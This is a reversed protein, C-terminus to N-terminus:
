EEMKTHADGNGNLVLNDGNLKASNGGTMDDSKLPIQPKEESTSREPLSATGNTESQVAHHLSDLQKHSPDSLQKDLDQTPKIYGLVDDDTEPPRMMSDAETKTATSELGNMASEETKANQESTGKESQRVKLKVVLSQPELDEDEESLEVDDEDEDMIDDRGEEENEESNWGASSAADEEESMQDVDNYGEREKRKREGNLEELRGSSRNGRGGRRPMDSPESDEYDNSAPTTADTAQGSLLSEGYMGGGRPRVTRGSATVTPGENPTSRDSHRGSRRVGLEDGEDAEEDDFTYRM